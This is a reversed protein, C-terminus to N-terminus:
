IMKKVLAPLHDERDGTDGNQEVFHKLKRARFGGNPNSLKFPWLFQTVAKFNPGATAIEHIIDEISIIGFKGLEKEILNNDTIPIRQKNIKAYGRKYVLDRITKVNPEGYTVYPEVIQLMQSTAKTLKVFVGNNVQLLRLLQLVKRPKPAINCIGRLRIVFVVKPQAPVFFEGQSKALRRLRIEERERSQYEKVYQEARKFIVQRKNKRAKRLEAAKAIKEQRKAEDTKRKKLLTEPQLVSEYAPVSTSM